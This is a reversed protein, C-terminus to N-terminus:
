QPEETKTGGLWKRAINITSGFVTTMAAMVLLGVEGETRAEIEPVFRLGWITLFALAAASSGLLTGTGVKKWDGRDPFQRPPTPM